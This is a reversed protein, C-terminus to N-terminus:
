ISFTLSIADRIQLARKLREKRDPKLIVRGESNVRLLQFPACPGRSLFKVSNLNNLM